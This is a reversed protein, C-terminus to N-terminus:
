WRYGRNTPSHYAPEPFIVGGNMLYITIGYLLIAVFIFAAVCIVVTTSDWVSYRKRAYTRCYEDDWITWILCKTVFLLGMYGYCFFRLATSYPAAYEGCIYFGVISPMLMVLTLLTKSFMSYRQWLVHFEYVSKSFARLDETLTPQPAPPASTPIRVGHLSM